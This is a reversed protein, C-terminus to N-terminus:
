DFPTASEIEIFGHKDPKEWGYARAFDEKSDSIRKSVPDYYLKIAKDGTALRGTLRNKSVTLLREHEQLDRSRKYTMIIDAKNSIDASGSIEDNDDNGFSNKRPHAVLIVVVGLRKSLKVLKDVFKSQARYLDAGMSVDLATMLNDILILDIGYQQVTKEIIKLLEPLEDDEAANNDFLFARGRYWAGIKDVTSKTIVMRANGDEVYQEIIHGPGAAQMDIWRKFFYGPLEGSYAFVSKGADLANLVIQSALTSKGGGRKGTLIITQGQYMGGSLVYDIAKIGTPIKPLSYIDVAAVDALDVVQRVPVPRANEVAARVANKGYKQLLENADKCGKYDETQVVALLGNFRKQMDELLTIHGKEYDGFIVLREFQQLWEWCNPVWTFGKAGTPVSVANEIGAEAVSLSDIQGETLVLTKNGPDCQYMGFLIPKCGSECWEKNKDKDRDFDTKRYKVFQLTGNEDLFPFVLINKASSQVTIQYREAVGTSIGRGKLYELAPPKPVVKKEPQKLRRYRVSSNGTDYENGLSYNFDKALTLM